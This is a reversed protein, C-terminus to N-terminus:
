GLEVMLAATVTVGAAAVAVLQTVVGTETVIPIWWNSRTSTAGTAPPNRGHSAVWPQPELLKPVTRKKSPLVMSPSAATWPVSTLMPPDAVVAYLADSVQTGVVALGRVIVACYRPVVGLAGLEAVEFTVTFPALAVFM